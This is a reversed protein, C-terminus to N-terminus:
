QVRGRSSGAIRRARARARRAACACLWEAARRAGMSARRTLLVVPLPRRRHHHVPAGPGEPLRHGGHGAAPQAQGGACCSGAGCRREDGSRRPLQTQPDTFCRAAGQGARWDLSSSLLFLAFQWVCIQPYTCVFTTGFLRKLYLCSRAPALCAYCTHLTTRAQDNHMGTGAAADPRKFVAAVDRQVGTFGDDGVEAAGGGGGRMADAGGAFGAAPAQVGVPAANLPARAAAGPVNYTGREIRCPRLGVHRGVAPSSSNSRAHLTGCYPSRWSGCARQCSWAPPSRRCRVRGVHVAYQARARQSDTLGPNPPPAGRRRRRGGRRGQDPARAPLHVEAPPVDGARAAPPETGQPQRRAGRRRRASPM